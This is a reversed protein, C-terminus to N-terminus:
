LQNGHVIAQRTEKDFIHIQNMDVSLRVTDGPDAQQDTCATWETGGMDFHLFNGTGLEERTRVEIQIMQNESAKAQAKHLADPRIGLVVTKGLYGNEELVKGLADPLTLNIGNATLTVGDKSNGAAVEARNMQPFGLFGAVFVNDPQNYLNKPFGVQQIMGDKIAVTRTGLALVEAQDDTVYIITMGLERNMRSIEGRMQKRLGEELGSFAGDILFVRPKRVVTRGLVVSQRQGETLEQPDRDLMGSLGFFEAAERVRLTIEEEPLRKLKLGFALNEYVSMHPYLMYNQFLMAIERDGPELDNVLSGDIFIEGSTVDVLGAIMRLITSKGCGSPGTFVVFEQNDIELDFDRVAAFGNPYAKTVHKLSLSSM